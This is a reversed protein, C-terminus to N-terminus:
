QRRLLLIAGAVAAALGAFMAAAGITSPEALVNYAAAPVTLGLGFILLTKGM